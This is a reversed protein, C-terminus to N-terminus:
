VSALAATLKMVDPITQPPRRGLGCETAVGFAPVHRQATAIRRKGGELGDTYHVLGLYLQTGAPLDLDALPGFYADDDREKPVPMHIWDVKRSIKRFIANALDVMVRTNKPEMYHKHEYDGYCFHFGLAVDNPVWSAVKLLRRLMDSNPDPFLIERDPVMPIGELIGIENAVDWQIALENAPIVRCIAEIEERMAQEYLPEVKEYDKSEIMVTMPALPTPLSVQFRVGPPIKGGDRLRAFTKYSAIAADAYGLKGFRAGSLEGRVQYRDLGVQETVTSPDESSQRTRSLFSADEMVQRQWMFWHIREGTEGDPISRLTNGLLAGAVSLVEEANALPVSGVLLTPRPANNM